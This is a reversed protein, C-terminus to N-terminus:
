LSTKLQKIDSHKNKNDPLMGMTKIRLTNIQITKKSKAM